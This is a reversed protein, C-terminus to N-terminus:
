VCYTQRNAVLEKLLPTIHERMSTLTVLRAAKNQIRQLRAIQSTPPNLLLSNCYYLRSTILAQVANKTADVTLYRRVSSLRYLQFNCAACIATVQSIMSLHDDMQVGLNRVHSVPIIASDGINITCHGYQGLHHKSCFIVMETKDDNLKLMRISMWIRIEKICAELRRIAKERAGPVAPDYEVHLQIDDAYKHHKVEHKRIIRQIPATYLTFIVPGLVPGQPVGCKLPVHDSTTTEVQLRQTRDGLYTSFWSLAKGTIGYEDRLLGLLQNQKITDFAASLDLM